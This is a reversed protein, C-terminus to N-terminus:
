LKKDTGLARAYECCHRSFFKNRLKSLLPDHAMNEYGWIRLLDKGGRPSAHVGQSSAKSLQKQQCNGGKQRDDHGRIALGAAM